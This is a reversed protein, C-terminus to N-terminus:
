LVRNERVLLNEAAHRKVYNTVAIHFLISDGAHAEFVGASPRAGTKVPSLDHEFRPVIWWFGVVKLRHRARLAACIERQRMDFRVLRAVIAAGKLATFTAM